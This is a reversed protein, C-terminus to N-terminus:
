KREKPRYNRYKGNNFRYYHTSGDSEVFRYGQPISFVNDADIVLYEGDKPGGYIEIEIQPISKGDQEQYTIKM